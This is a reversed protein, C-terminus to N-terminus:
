PLEVAEKSPSHSSSSSDITVNSHRNGHLNTNEIEFAHTDSQRQNQNKSQNISSSGSEEPASHIIASSTNDDFVYTTLNLVRLIFSLNSENRVDLRTQEEFDKIKPLVNSRCGDLEVTNEENTLFLTTFFTSCIALEVLVVFSV